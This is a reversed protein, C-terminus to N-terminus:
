RRADGLYRKAKDVIVETDLLGGVGGRGRGGGVIMGAKTRTNSFV